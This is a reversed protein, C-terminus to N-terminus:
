EEKWNPYIEYLAEDFADDRGECENQTDWDHAEFANIVKKYFGIRLERDDIASKAADIVSDMLSSGSAWGM